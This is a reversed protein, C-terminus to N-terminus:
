TLCERSRDALRRHDIFGFSQTIGLCSLNRHLLCAAFMLFAAAYYRSSYHKHQQLQTPTISSVREDSGNRDPRDRKLLLRAAPDAAIRRV